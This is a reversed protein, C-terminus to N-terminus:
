ETTAFLDPFSKRLRAVIHDEVTETQAEGIAKVAKDRMALHLMLLDHLKRFALHNSRGCVSEDKDLIRELVTRDLFRIKCLMALRAIERDVEELDETWWVLPLDPHEESMADATKQPQELKRAETQIAFLLTLRHKATPKITM